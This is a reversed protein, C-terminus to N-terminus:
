VNLTISDTKLTLKERSDNDYSQLELTFAGPSAQLPDVVVLSPSGQLVEVWPLEKGPSQRMYINQDRPEPDQSDKQWIQDAEDQKENSKVLKVNEMKFVFERDGQEFNIVTEIQQDRAYNPETFFVPM